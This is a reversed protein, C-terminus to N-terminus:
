SQPIEPIEPVSGDVKPLRLRLRLFRPLRTRPVHQELRFAPLRDLRLDRADRDTLSLIKM